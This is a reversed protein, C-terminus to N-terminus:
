KKLRVIIKDGYAYDILSFSSFMVGGFAAGLIFSGDSNLDLKNYMVICMLIFLFFPIYGILLAFIKDFGELKRLDTFLVKKLYKKFSAKWDM